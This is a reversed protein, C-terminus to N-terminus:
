NQCHMVSMGEFYKWCPLARDSKISNITLKIKISNWFPYLKFVFRKSFIQCLKFTHTWCKLQTRSSFTEYTHIIFLLIECMKFFVNKSVAFFNLHTLYHQFYNIKKSFPLFTNSGSKQINEYFRPWDWCTKELISLLLDIVGNFTHVHRNSKNM